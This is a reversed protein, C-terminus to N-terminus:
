EKQFDSFNQDAMTVKGQVYMAKGQFEWTDMVDMEQRVQEAVFGKQGVGIVHDKDKIAGVGAIRGLTVKM